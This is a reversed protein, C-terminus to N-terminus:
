DEQLMLLMPCCLATGHLHNTATAELPCDLLLAPVEPYTASPLCCTLSTRCEPAQPPHCGPHCPGFRAPLRCCPRAVAARVQLLVGCTHLCRWMRALGQGLGWWCAAAGRGCVWTERSCRRMRAPVVVDKEFMVGRLVRSDEIAGGPIKEVKAYKRNAPCPCHSHISQLQPAACGGPCHLLGDAGRQVAGVLAQQCSGPREASQRM